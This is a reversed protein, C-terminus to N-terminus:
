GNVPEQKRDKKPQKQSNAATLSEMDAQLTDFKVQLQNLERIASAAASEATLMRSRIVLRESELEALRNERWQGSGVGGEQPKEGIPFIQFAFDMGEQHLAARIAQEDFLKNTSAASQPSASQAQDPPHAALHGARTFTERFRIEEPTLPQRPPPASGPRPEGFNTTM